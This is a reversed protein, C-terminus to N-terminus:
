CAQGTAPHGPAADGGDAAGGQVAGVPIDGGASAACVWELSLMARVGIGTMDYQFLM